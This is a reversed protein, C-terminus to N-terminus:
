KKIVDLRYLFLSHNNWDSQQTKKKKLLPSSLLKNSKLGDVVNTNYFYYKLHLFLFMKLTCDLFWVQQHMDDINNLFFFMCVCMFFLLLIMIIKHYYQFSFHHGRIKLIVSNNPNKLKKTTAQYPFISDYTLCFISVVYTFISCLNYYQFCSCLHYRVTCYPVTGTGTHYINIIEFNTRVYPVHVLILPDLIAFSYVYTPVTSYQVRSDICQRWLQRWTTSIFM